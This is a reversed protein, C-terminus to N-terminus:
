SGCGRLSETGNWWLWEGPGAEDFWWGLSWQRSEHMNSLVYWPRWHNLVRRVELTGMTEKVAEKMKGMGSM